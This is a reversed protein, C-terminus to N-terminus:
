QSIVSIVNNLFVYQGFDFIGFIIVGGSGVSGVECVLFLMVSLVIIVIQVNVLNCGFLCFLGGVFYCNLSM